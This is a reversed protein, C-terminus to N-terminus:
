LVNKLTLKKVLTNHENRSVKDVVLTDIKYTLEDFRTDMKQELKDVRFDLNDIRSTLKSGLSDIRHTLKFDVEDIKNSLRSELSNFGENMDKRLDIFEAMVIEAFRDLTMARIEENITKTNMVCIM